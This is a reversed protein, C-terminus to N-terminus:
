QENIGMYERNIMFFGALVTCGVDKVCCYKGQVIDTTNRLNHKKMCIHSYSNKLRNKARVVDKNMTVSPSSPSRVWADACCLNSMDWADDTCYLNFV